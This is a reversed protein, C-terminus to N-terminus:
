WSAWRVDSIGCFSSPRRQVSWSADPSHRCGSACTTAEDAGSSGRCIMLGTRPERRGATMSWRGCAMYNDMYAKVAGRDLKDVELGTGEPSAPNNTVGLLSYGFRLVQWRGPPPTWDLTGDSHLKETLDIVGTRSIADAAVVPQSRPEDVGNGVFFAAKEEFHDIRPATQLVFEAVRHGTAPPGRLASFISPAERRPTPLLLRFYRAAVPEFALTQEVDAVDFVTAVTHFEVGDQSSQLEAIARTPDAGRGGVGQLALTMSRVRRPRGFDLGIWAPEDQEGYPLSVVTSLKGDWLLGADINGASSTVVPHWEGPPREDVPLRYAIVAVDKHFDPVAENPALGGLPAVSNAWNIRVDQFPGIASPPPAIRIPLPGGSQVLTESWVLKKMSQEPPVWPGGSESWGPSGAIAFELGLQDAETVAYRFADRWAPTMFAVRQDVVLPTALSADFNQVGGIGVRHMWELDLKIGERSINGNMWHWWVRPRATDPPDMFATALTDAAHAPTGTTLVWVMLLAMSIIKM